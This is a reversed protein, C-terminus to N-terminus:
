VKSFLSRYVEMLEIAAKEWSFKRAQVLSRQSLESRLDADALVRRLATFLAATDTPEILLAAEGVVEPLSSSNSSVLPTGCAM